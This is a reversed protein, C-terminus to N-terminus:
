PTRRQGHLSSTHYVWERSGLMAMVSPWTPHPVPIPRSFKSIQPPSSGWNHCNMGDQCKQTEVTSFSKGWVCKQDCKHIESEKRNRLDSPNQSWKEICPGKPCNWRSCSMLWELIIIDLDKNGAFDKDESNWIWFDLAEHGNRFMGCARVNIVDLGSSKGWFQREERIELMMTLVSGPIQADCYGRRKEWQCCREVM